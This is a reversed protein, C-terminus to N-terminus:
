LRVRCKGSDIIQIVANPPVQGPNTRVAQALAIELWLFIWLFVGLLVYGRTTQNTTILMAIYTFIYILAFYIVLLHSIFFPLYFGFKRWCVM